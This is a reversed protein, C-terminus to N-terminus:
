DRVEEYIHQAIGGGERDPDSAVYVDEGKAAVKIRRIVDAKGETVRFCPEYTELNVAMEDVPLDKFHGVTALVTAGTIQRIKKIKNPSEIIIIM